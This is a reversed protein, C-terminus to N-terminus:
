CCRPHSNLLIAAKQEPTLPPPKPAARRRALWNRLRKM